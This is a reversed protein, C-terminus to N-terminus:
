LVCFFSSISTEGKTSASIGADGTTAINAGIFGIPVNRTSSIILNKLSIMHEHM